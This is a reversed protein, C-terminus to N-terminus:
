AFGEAERHRYVWQIVEPILALSNVLLQCKPSAFHECSPSLYAFGHSPFLTSIFCLSPPANIPQCALAAGESLLFTVKVKKRNKTSLFSSVEFSSMLVRSSWMVSEFPLLGSVCFSLYFLNVRICSLHPYKEEEILM